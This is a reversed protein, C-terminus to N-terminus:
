SEVTASVAVKYVTDVNQLHLRNVYLEIFGLNVPPTNKSFHYAQMRRYEYCSSIKRFATPKIRVSECLTLALKQIVETM